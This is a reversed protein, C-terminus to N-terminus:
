SRLARYLTRLPAGTAGYGCGPAEGSWNWGSAFIDFHMLPRDTFHLLFHAANRSGASRGADGSLSATNRM